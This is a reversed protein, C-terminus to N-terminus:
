TQERLIICVLDQRWGRAHWLKGGHIVPVGLYRGLDNTLAIGGVHRIRNAAAHTINQSIFLKSKGVNVQQGVTERFEEIVKHM